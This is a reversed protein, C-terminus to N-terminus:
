STSISELKSSRKKEGAVAASPARQQAGLIQKKTKQNSEIKDGRFSLSTNQLEVGGIDTRRRAPHSHVQKFSYSNRSSFLVSEKIGTM